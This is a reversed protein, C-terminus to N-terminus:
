RILRDNCARLLVSVYGTCRIRHTGLFHSVNLPPGTRHTRCRVRPANALRSLTDTRGEVLVAPRSPPVVEWSSSQIFCLNSNVPNRSAAIALASGRVMVKEPVPLPEIPPVGYSEAANMKVTSESVLRIVVGGHQAVSKVVGLPVGAVKQISPMPDPVKM